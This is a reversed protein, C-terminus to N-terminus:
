RGLRAADDLWGSVEPQMALERCHGLRERAYGAFDTALTSIAQQVVAWMGERLESMIKMLQLRARHAPTVTGFYLELVAEDEGTAFSCNVSLNALDFFVDNRGAYEWDLLWVHGDDVLVNSPLLDNHCPVAPMPAAAFASEISRSVPHLEYWLNPPEVGNAHADAAHAEVIRHIPFLGAIPGSDH